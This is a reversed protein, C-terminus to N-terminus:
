KLFKALVLWGAVLLCGLDQEEGLIRFDLGRGSDSRVLLGLGRGSDSELGTLSSNSDLGGGRGGFCRFSADLTCLRPEWTDLDGDKEEFPETEETCVIGRGLCANWPKWTSHFKEQVICNHREFLNWATFWRIPDNLFTLFSNKKVFSLVMLNSTTRM